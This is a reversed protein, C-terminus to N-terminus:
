VSIYTYRDCENISAGILISAFAMAQNYATKQLHLQTASAGSTMQNNSVTAHIKVSIALLFTGLDSTRRRAAENM